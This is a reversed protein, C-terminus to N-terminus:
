GTFQETIWWNGFRDQVLGVGVQSFAASRINAMHRPSLEFDHEVSCPCPGYGVNEGWATAGARDADSHFLTGAAAMRTSHQQAAADLEARETLAPLGASARVDNIRGVLYARLDTAAKAPPAAALISVFLLAAALLTASLWRRRSGSHESAITRPTRPVPPSITM